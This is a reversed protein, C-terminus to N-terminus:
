RKYPLYRATEEIVAEMPPGPRGADRFERWVRGGGLLVRTEVALPAGTLASTLTVREVNGQGVAEFIAPFLSLDEITRDEFSHGALSLDFKQDSRLVLTAPCAGPTQPRASLSWYGNGERIEFQGAGSSKGAWDALQSTTATLQKRFLDDALM